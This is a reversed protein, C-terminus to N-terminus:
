RYTCKTKCCAKSRGGGLLVRAGKLHQCTGGWLRLWCQLSRSSVPTSVCQKTSGRGWDTACAM